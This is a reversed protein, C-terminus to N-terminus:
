RKRLVSRRMFQYGSKAKTIELMLFQGITMLVISIGTLLAGLLFIPIYVIALVEIIKKM